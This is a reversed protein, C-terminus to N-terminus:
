TSPQNNVKSEKKEWVILRMQKKVANMIKSSLYIDPLKKKSYAWIPDGQTRSVLLESGFAAGDVIVLGIEEKPDMKQLKSIINSKGNAAVCSINNEKSLSSFFEYGSINRVSWVRSQYKEMSIIFKM